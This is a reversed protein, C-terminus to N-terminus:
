SARPARPVVIWLVAYVLFGPIIPIFSGIVFVARVLTANWGRWEAIGGCVGAILKDSTSRRLPAGPVPM